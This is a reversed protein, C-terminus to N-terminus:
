EKRLIKIKYAVNPILAVVAFMVFYKAISFPLVEFVNTYLNSLSLLIILLWIIYILDFVCNRIHGSLSAFKLIDSPLKTAISHYDYYEYAKYFYIGNLLLYFIIAVVLMTVIIKFIIQLNEYTINNYVINYLFVKISNDKTAISLAILFVPLIMKNEKFKAIITDIIKNM